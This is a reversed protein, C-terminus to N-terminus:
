MEDIIYQIAGAGNEVPQVVRRRKKREPLQLEIQAPKQEPINIVPQLQSKIDAAAKVISLNAERALRVEERQKELAQFLAKFEDLNLRNQEMAMMFRSTVDELAVRIATFQAETDAKQKEVSANFAKIETERAKLQTDVQALRTESALKREKQDLEKSKILGEMQQKQGQLEIKLREYDPPPPQPQNADQMMGEMLQNIDDMYDKGLRMGALASQIVKFGVVQQRPTMGQLSAMGQTVTQIAVNRNQQEIQENIYSTSDTEFDLRICREEDNILLQYAQPVRQQDAEDMFQVATKKMIEEPTYAGLMLDVQLELTDRALKAVQNMQHRFRNSASLSKIQQTGVGELPDSVGRVVDPVGYIEYFENKYKEFLNSLEVISDALEKVPLAQIVNNIGGKEVIEMLGKIFIYESEDGDQILNLLDNEADKDVIFRRRISKSLHYIREAVEHMDDCMARVYSYAPRGFLTKRQKTGVIPCPCPFFNKLKYRDEVTKLLGQKYEPCLFRVRKTEKHWIEWGHLFLEQSGDDAERQNGKYDDIGKSKGFVKMCRKLESREIDPFEKYADHEAYCFRFYEEKIDEETKAEPTWMVEDYSLSMAYCRLNDWYEEEGYWEQSNEAQGIMQGSYESGNELYYREPNDEDRKLPIQKTKREGELMVRTTAVDSIIYELAASEIAEDYSTTEIGYM